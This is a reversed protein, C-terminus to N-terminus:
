SLQKHGVTLQDILEYSEGYVHIEKKSGKVLTFITEKPSIEVKIQSDEYNIQFCYSQWQAPIAPAFYIGSEKIRLGAFGYVIAMFTGGMNATHIGDKTNKHTNFLDLKASDGFYDYAKEELGLKSAMISFICTSLSSDHTTCKEYYAFSNRITELSQADELIFHALVTDAQKCVQHRYLHLPHYHLLLPFHDKPTNKIDWVKKNLFSDDQPNIKLKEEYPLYMLKAAEEIEKIEAETIGLRKATEIKGEKQLLHYFKSAWIL